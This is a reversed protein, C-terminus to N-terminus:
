EPRERSYDWSSSAAVTFLVTNRGALLRSLPEAPDRGRLQGPLLAELRVTRSEGPRDVPAAGSTPQGALSSERGSFLPTSAV